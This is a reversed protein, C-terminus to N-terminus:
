AGRTTASLLGGLKRSKAATEHDRLHRLNAANIIVHAVIPGILQGTMAFMLSLWAGLGAATLMWGWRGKGRVQHLAGFAVAALAIGVTRGLFARFFLEECIGSGAAMAFLVVNGETRVFPRLKDHLARAWQTRRALTRSLIIVLAASAVGLLLSGVFAEVGSTGLWADCTFPDLGFGWACGVGVVGLAGYAACLWPLWPRRAPADRTAGPLNGVRVRESFVLRSPTAM